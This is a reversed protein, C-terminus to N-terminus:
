EHAAVWAWVRRRHLLAGVLFLLLAGAGLLLEEASPVTDAPRPGLFVALGATVGQTAAWTLTLGVTLLAGVNRGYVALAWIATPGGSWVRWLLGALLLPGVGVLVLTGTDVVGADRAEAFARAARHGFVAVGWGALVAVGAVLEVPRGAPRAVREARRLLRGVGFPPRAVAFVDALAGSGGPGRRLHPAFADVARRLARWARLRHSFMIRYAGDGAWMGSMEPHRAAFGEFPFLSLVGPGVVVDALEDWSVAWCTEGADTLSRVGSADLVIRAVARRRLSRVAVVAAGLLVGGGVACGAAARPTGALALVATAFLCAVGLWALVAVAPLLAVRGASPLEFAAPADSM